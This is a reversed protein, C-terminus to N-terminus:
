EQSSSDDAPGGFHHFSPKVRNHSECGSDTDLCHRSGCASLLIYLLAIVAAASNRSIRRENM